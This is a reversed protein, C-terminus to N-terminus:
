VRLGEEFVEIELTNEDLTCPHLRRYSTADKCGENEQGTQMRSDPLSWYWSKGQKRSKVRLMKKAEALTRKAIGEDKASAEISSALVEGGALEARLFQVATKLAAGGACLDDATSGCEGMFEVKFVGTMPDPVLRLELSKPTPGVNSKVVSLIRRTEDDPHKDLRLTIRTAGILGISGGGAYMASAKASKTLHRVFFIACDTREAIRSLPSTIRRMDTDKFYDLHSDIVATLTDVFLFKIQNEVIFLELDIAASPFTTNENPNIIYVRKMDAGAANLRPVIARDISDEVSLVAVNESERRSQCFPFPDGTSITAAVFIMAATKATTPDGEIAGLTGRPIYGPWFWDFRRPVIDAALTFEIRSKPAPRPAEFKELASASRREWADDALLKLERM